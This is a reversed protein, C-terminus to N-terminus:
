SPDKYNEIEEMTLGLEAVVQEFPIGPNNKFWEKSETLAREEEATMPEDDSPANRLAAAVPDVMAKLLGALASLQAEPLLDVMEHVKQRADTLTDELAAAEKRM